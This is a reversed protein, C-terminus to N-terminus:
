QGAERNGQGDHIVTEDCGEGALDVGVEAVELRTFGQLTYHDTWCSLCTACTMDQYAHRGEVEVQGGEASNKDGCHPCYLGEGAVYRAQRQAEHDAENQDAQISISVYDRHARYDWGRRFADAAPQSFLGEVTEIEGSEHDTVTIRYMPGPAGERAPTSVYRAANAWGEAEVIARSIAANTNELQFLNSNKISKPFYQRSIKVVKAALQAAELLQGAVTAPVYEESPAGPNARVQESIQHGSLTRM